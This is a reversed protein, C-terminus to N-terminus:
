YGLFRIRYFINAHISFHTINGCGVSKSSLVYCLKFDDTNLQIGQLTDAIKADIDFLPNSKINIYNLSKLCIYSTFKQYFLNNNSIDLCHLNPLQQFARKEITNILNFQMFLVKLNQLFCFGESYIIQILNVSLDIQRVLLVSSSSCRHLVSNIHKINSKSIHRVIVLCGGKGM